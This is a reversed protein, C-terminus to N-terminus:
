IPVNDSVSLATSIAWRAPNVLTIDCREPSVSSAVIASRATAVLQPWILVPEKARESRSALYLWNIRMSSCSPLDSLFLAGACIPFPPRFTITTQISSIRSSLSRLKDLKKLGNNLYHNSYYPAIREINKSLIATRIQELFAQVDEPLDALEKGAQQDGYFKWNGNEQVMRKKISSSGYSHKMTGVLYLIGASEKLESVLIRYGSLYSLREKFSNVYAQANKGKNLYRPSYHQLISGINQSLIASEYSSLFLQIDKPVATSHNLKALEAPSTSCATLLFFLLIKSIIMISSPGKQPHYNM